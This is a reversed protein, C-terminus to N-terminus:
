RLTKGDLTRVALGLRELLTLSKHVKGNLGDRDSTCLALAAEAMAEVPELIGEGAIVDETLVKTPDRGRV